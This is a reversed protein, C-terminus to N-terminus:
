RSLRHIEDVLANPDITTKNLCFASLVGQLEDFPLPMSKILNDRKVEIEKIQHTSLNQMALLALRAQASTFAAQDGRLFATFAEFSYQRQQKTVEADNGRVQSMIDLGFQLIERGKAEVSEPTEKYQRLKQVVIDIAKSDKCSSNLLGNIDKYPDYKFLKMESILGKFTWNNVLKDADHGIAIGRSGISSVQGEGNYTEDVKVGDLYLESTNIGDYLLEATHWNDTTILGPESRVVWHNRDTFINGSLSGDSEIWMGFCHDGQILNYTRNFAGEPSLNFSVLVRISWLDKLSPNPDIQVISEPKDFFFAEPQQKVYLPLGHNRNDSLDFSSRSYCHHIILKNM